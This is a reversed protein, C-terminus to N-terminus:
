ALGLRQHFNNTGKTCSDHPTGDNSSIEGGEFSGICLVEFMANLLCDPVLLLRDDEVIQLFDNM